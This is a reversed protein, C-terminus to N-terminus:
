RGEVDLPLIGSGGLILIPSDVGSVMVQNLRPMVEDMTELYMRKSIIEPAARYEELVALYRDAEGQAEAIQTARYAEAERMIAEARGRAVPLTESEFALAQNIRTDREERARLVDDFAAKVQDPPKVELLQVSTITLGTRYADLIQQAVEMTELEIAERDSVLVEDITRQGVSRRIAVEIADKISQGDPRGEPHSDHTRQGGNDWYEFSVGPDDAEFLYANLDSIHYQAVVQIELLSLDGAIMTAAVLDRQWNEQTDIDILDGPLTYFGVEATRSKDVQEVTVQGIPWPWHWHLGETSTPEDSADGWTQVAAAEGPKVTYLGSLTLGVAGILVIAVIGILGGRIASKPVFVAEMSEGDNQEAM